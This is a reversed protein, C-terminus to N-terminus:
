LVLGDWYIHPLTFQGHEVHGGNPQSPRLVEVCVKSINSIARHLSLSAWAEVDKGHPSPM